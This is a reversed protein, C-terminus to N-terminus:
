DILAGKADHFPQPGPFKGIVATHTVLGEGEVWAHLQYGPPELVFASPGDPTLDLAVQHCPAPCTSAVTHAFRRHIARHLHGCIIREVQPHRSIVAKLAERGELGIRDMHAIGTAFPPHHMMVVTPRGPEAALTRELWELRRACLAGGGKGPVVTDLAVLRLPGADLDYQLFEGQPLYDHDPFAERLASRADHNGPLLLYPFRLPALLARLRAYEVPAGFDVLDGTLAVLDPLPDLANLAAVARELAAGTDVQRYALKGAERVHLDTLQALIM